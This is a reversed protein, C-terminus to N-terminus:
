SAEVARRHLVSSVISRLACPLDVLIHELEVVPVLPDEEPVKM